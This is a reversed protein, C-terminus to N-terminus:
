VTENPQDEKEIDSIIQKALDIYDMASDQSLFDCLYMTEQDQVKTVSYLENDNIKDIIRSDNCNMQWGNQTISLTVGMKNMVFPSSAHPDLSYKNNDDWLEDVLIHNLMKWEINYISHYSSNLIVMELPRNEKDDWAYCGWVTDERNAGPYKIMYYQWSKVDFEKCKDQPDLLAASTKFKDAVIKLISDQNRRRENKIFFAPLDNPHHIFLRRTMNEDREMNPDYQAYEVDSDILNVRIKDFNDPTNNNLVEEFHNLKDFLDSHENYNNIFLMISGQLLNHNEYKLLSSYEEDSYNLFKYREEDCATSVFTHNGESLLGDHAVVDDVDLMFGGLMDYRASNARVNATVLNRVVRLCKKAIDDNKKSTKIIYIAYLYVTEPVSLDRDMALYFVPKQSQSQLWFLRIKDTVGVTDGSFYFYNNWYASIGEGKQLDSMMDFISIIDSISKEDTIIEDIAPTRKKQTEIKRRFMEMRFINNFLCMFGDDAKKVIDEEKTSNQAYTWLIDMWSNDIKKSLDEKLEPSIRKVAKELDSKFIEFETLKKGRSNMKIYLDDTLGFKDLSLSYFQINDQENLKTWLNEIKDSRYKTEIVELVNLMSLITPDSSYSPLYKPNDVIIEKISNQDTYDQLLSNRITGLLSEIFDTASQRTEYRFKKLDDVDDTSVGPQVISSYYHLLFLTTLRQQGDLPILGSSENNRKVFTGGYVFDFIVNTNNKVADFMTSLMGDLVEEVKPEKRGYAYDRQVKPIMIVSEEAILRSFTTLKGINNM